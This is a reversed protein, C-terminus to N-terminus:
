AARGLMGQPRFLLVALVVGFLGAEVIGATSPFVQQLGAELLGIAMGGAFAGSLSTLGGVLAAALARPFFFTLSLPLFTGIAPSLIIGTLGALAASVGWAFMSIHRVRVGMLRVTTPDHAAALVGLGFTTRKLLAVLGLGLAATFILATIRLPEVYVGLIQPGASRFPKPLLQPSNGWLGVEIGFLLLSLGITAILLSVRSADINPRVIFREFGLGILTVTAIGALAGIGWPMQWRVICQWAIYTAFTGMEALGFNLVRTTKYVLCIGLALLGYIAGVSIGIVVTENM